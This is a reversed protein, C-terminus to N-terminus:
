RNKMDVEGIEALPRCATMEALAAPTVLFRRGLVCVNLKRDRIANRLTSVTVPGEPWFVRVAEDLSM